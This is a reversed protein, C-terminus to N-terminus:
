ISSLISVEFRLEEVPPKAFPINRYEYFERGDRSASVIGQVSGLKTEVVPSSSHYIGLSSIIIYWTSLSSSMTFLQDSVSHIATETIRHPICSLPIAITCMFVTAKAVSVIM